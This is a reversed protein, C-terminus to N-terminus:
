SQVIRSLILKARGISDVPYSSRLVGEVYKDVHLNKGTKNIKAQVFEGVTNIVTAEM